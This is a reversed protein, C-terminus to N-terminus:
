YNGKEISPGTYESLSTETNIQHEYYMGKNKQALSRKVMKGHDEVLSRLQKITQDIIHQQEKYQEFDDTTNIIKQLMICDAIHSVFKVDVEITDM